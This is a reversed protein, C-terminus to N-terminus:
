SRLDQLRFLLQFELSLRTGVDPSIKILRVGIKIVLRDFTDVKDM